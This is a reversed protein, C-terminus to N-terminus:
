SIAASAHSADEVYCTKNETVKFHLFSSRSCCFSWAATYQAM